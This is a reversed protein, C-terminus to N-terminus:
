RVTGTFHAVVLGRERKGEPGFLTAAKVRSIRQALQVRRARDIREVLTSYLEALATATDLSM